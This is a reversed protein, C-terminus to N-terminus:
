REWCNVRLVMLIYRREEREGRGIRGFRGFDGLWGVRESELSPM